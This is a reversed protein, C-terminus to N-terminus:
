INLYMPYRCGGLYQTLAANFFYMFDDLVTSSVM